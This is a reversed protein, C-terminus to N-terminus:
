QWLPLKARLIISSSHSVRLKSFQQQEFDRINPIMQRNTLTASKAYVSAVSRLNIDVIVPARLLEVTKNGFKRVSFSRCVLRVSCEMAGNKDWQGERVWKSMEKM